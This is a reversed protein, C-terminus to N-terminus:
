TLRAAALVADLLVQCGAALDNPEAFEDESHSIGLRCATFIMATPAVTALACADHMAGSVIRMTPLDNNRAAVAVRDVAGEDFAM